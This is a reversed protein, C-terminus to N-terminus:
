WTSLISTGGVKDNVMERHHLVSMPYAHADGDIEVGLVFADDPYRADEASTFRPEYVPSIADRFLLQHFGYPLPEGAAVPDYVYPLARRGM